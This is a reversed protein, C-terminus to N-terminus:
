ISLSPPVSSQAVGAFQRSDLHAPLADALRLEGLLLDASVGAETAAVTFAVGAATARENPGYTHIHKAIARAIQLRTEVWEQDLHSHVETIVAHAVAASLPVAHGAPRTHFPTLDAALALHDAPDRGAPLVGVSPHLGAERLLEGAALTARQGAPDNDYAIVPQARSRRCWTAITEAHNATLATGCTAVPLPDHDGRRFATAAIALADIPGEVLVPTRGRMAMGELLGYLLEGKRYVNSATTNLYKPASSNDDVTRGIFGAINNTRNRIPFIIRDRFRDVIAGTGTIVSLGAAVLEDDRFGKARMADILSTWRPRAYGVPYTDYLISADVGRAALYDVAVRSGRGDCWVALAAENIRHIQAAETVGVEHSAATSQGRSSSLPPQPARM